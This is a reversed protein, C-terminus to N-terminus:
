QLSEKTDQHQIIYKRILTITFIFGSKSHLQMPFIGYCGLSLRAKENLSFGLKKRNM